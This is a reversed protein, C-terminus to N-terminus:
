MCHSFLKTRSRAFEYSRYEEGHYANTKNKWHDKRLENTYSSGNDNYINTRQKRLSISSTM